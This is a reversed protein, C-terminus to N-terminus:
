TVKGSSLNIMVKEAAEWLCSVMIRNTSIRFKGFFSMDVFSFFFGFSFVFEIRKDM